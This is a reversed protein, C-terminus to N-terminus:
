TDSKTDKRDMRRRKGGLFYGLVLYIGHGIEVGIVARL